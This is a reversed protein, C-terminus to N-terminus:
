RMGTRGSPGLARSLGLMLAPRLGPQGVAEDADDFTHDAWPNVDDGDPSYSTDHGTLRTSFCYEAGGSVLLSLKRAVPHRLDMGAAMGWHASTVDFDENGGVYRFNAKFSSRRVGLYWSSRETRTLIGDLGLDLTRGSETPTGNTANNISVRRALAPDGPGVATRGMRLRLHMPFGEALDEVTGVLHVAVGGQYGVLAGM